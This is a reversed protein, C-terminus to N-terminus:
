RVYLDGSSNHASPWPRTAFVCSTGFVTNNTKYGYVGIGNWTGSIGGDWITFFFAIRARLGSCGNHSRNANITLTGTQPYTGIQTPTCSTSSTIVDYLSMGSWCQSVDGVTGSSTVMVDTFDNMQSYGPSIHNTDHVTNWGNPDSWSSHEYYPADKLLLM